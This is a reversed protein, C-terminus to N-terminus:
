GGPGQPDEGVGNLNIIEVEFVGVYRKDLRFAVVGLNLLHQVLDGIAQPPTGPPIFPLSYGSNADYWLEGTSILHWTDRHVRRTKEHVVYYPMFSYTLTVDNSYLLSVPPTWYPPSQVASGVCSNTKTTLPVDLHTYGDFLLSIGCNSNTDDRVIYSFTEPVEM